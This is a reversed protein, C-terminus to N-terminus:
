IQDRIGDPLLFSILPALFLLAWIDISYREINVAASIRRMITIAMTEVNRVFEFVGVGTM